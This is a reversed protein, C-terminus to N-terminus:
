LGLDKKVEDFSITGSEDAERLAEMAENVEDVYAVCATVHEKTIGPYETTIQAVSWKRKLLEVVHDVSLRTGKIVPKGAMVDPDISIQDEWDIMQRTM